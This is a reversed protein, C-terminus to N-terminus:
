SDDGEKTLFKINDKIINFKKYNDANCEAIQYVTCTFDYIKRGLTTNPTFSINSLRVLINGETESRLLKIDTSQLFQMVKERFFREYIFDNYLNINKDNNYAEYFPASDGYLDNKSGHFVNGDINMFCTITGSLSFTKYNVIGNRRFFPYQSGITDVVSEAVKNSMNSIVPNFKVILEEGQANLFIDETDIMVPKDAPTVIEATKQNSISWRTIQYRYWVGPEATYDEWVLEVLDDQEITFNTLTEWVSFNTTSASRRIIIRDGTSLFSKDFEDFFIMRAFYSDFRVTNQKFSMADYNVNQKVKQAISEYAVLTVIENNDTEFTYYEHYTDAQEEMYELNRKLKVQICGTDNKTYEELYVDSIEVPTSRTILIRGQINYNYLNNTTLNTNISYHKDPLLVTKIVYNITNNESILEGTDELVKNSNDLDVLQIHYKELKETDGSAFSVNGTLEVYDTQLIVTSSNSGNVYFNTIPPSIGRILVVTSWQSFNAINADLWSGFASTTPDPIPSTAQASTFRLQVKYYKNLNFGTTRTEPDFIDSNNIEIYYKDKGPRTEDQQLTAIMINNVYNSKLANQNTQQSRVSVQIGGYNSYIHYLDDKTNLPSIEFYIKSSTNYIFAPMISQEFIPPYLNIDYM